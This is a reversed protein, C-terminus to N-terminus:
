PTTTRRTNQLLVRLEQEPPVRGSVIVVGDVVLGPTLLIPYQMIEDIASIKTITAEYGLEDLIMRTREELLECKRCGTGLVKVDMKMM